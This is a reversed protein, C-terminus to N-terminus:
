LNDDLIGIKIVTNGKSYREDIITVPKTLAEATISAVISALPTGLWQYVFANNQELRPRSIEVEMEKDNIQDVKVGDALDLLGILISSLSFAIGESTPEPKGELKTATVSGLTSILLGVDEAKPGFNVILRKSLPQQLKFSNIDSLLPLLAQPRGGSALASPLYIAKSRIGLEEILTAINEMGIKLFMTGTDPSIKPLSKALAFCIIGLILM